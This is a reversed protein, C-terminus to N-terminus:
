HGAGPFRQESTDPCAFRVPSPFESSPRTAGLKFHEGAQNSPQVGAANVPL